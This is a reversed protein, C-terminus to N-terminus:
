GNRKDEMVKKELRNTLAITTQCYHCSNPQRMCRQRCNARTEGFDDPLGASAINQNLNTILVNLNGPWKGKKYIEWITREQELSLDGEFEFTHIIDEYLSADEPRIWSEMLGNERPIYADYAVNPVVRLKAKYDKLNSIDFLPSGTVRIYEVGLKDLAILDSFNNVPYGYYFKINNQKFWNITALNSLCCIFNNSIRAYSIILNEFESYDVPLEWIITKEPYDKLLDVIIRYDKHAVKIEDAQRLVSAPQRVSLCYNM